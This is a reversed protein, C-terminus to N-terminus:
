MFVLTERLYKTFSQRQFCNKPKLEGLVMEFKIENM